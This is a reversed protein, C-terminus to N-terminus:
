WRRSGMRWGRSTREPVLRGVFWANNRGARQYTRGRAGPAAREIVCGVSMRLAPDMSGCIKLSATATAWAAPV